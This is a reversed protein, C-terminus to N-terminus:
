RGQWARWDAITATRMARAATLLWGRKRRALDRLIADRQRATGLHVNATEWGMMWLLKCEDRTGALDALEVRSCDPALRRVVWGEEVRLYPDVVRVARANVAVYRPSEPAQKRLWWWASEIVPKVERAITGGRWAVLAAFRQRGLSGLGAQRHVIRSRLTKEPLAARLVRRATADVTGSVTPLALLKDWYLRQEKLRGVALDRLWRHREALVVPTGGGRLAEWYGELVSECVNRASVRLHAEKIALLASACLRVLDNAYPLTAAEDFDNVGWILRGEGDRWTGFNEIHLDGVGLVSPAAALEPCVEPWIQAWRYFSARLFLFAGEAMRRHKLKLDVPLLRLRQSLWAEYKRTSEVANM